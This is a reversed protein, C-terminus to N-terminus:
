LPEKLVFRNLIRICERTEDVSFDNATLTLIYNFLAQNRGDGADMDLFDASTRVPFLWKPVEQYEGGDVIDWECFREEGNIKIVEHCDKTFYMDERNVKHECVPCTRIDREEFRCSLGNQRRRCDEVTGDRGTMLQNKCIDCDNGDNFYKMEQM